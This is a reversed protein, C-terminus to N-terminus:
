GNAQGKTLAARTRNLRARHIKNRCKVLPDDPDSNRELREFYDSWEQLAERLEANEARLALLEDRLSDDCLMLRRLLTMGEPTLVNGCADTLRAKEIETLPERLRTLEDIPTARM